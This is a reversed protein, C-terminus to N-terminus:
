EKYFESSKQEPHLFSSDKDIQGKNQFNRRKQKAVQTQLM